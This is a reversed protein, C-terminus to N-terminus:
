FQLGDTLLFYTTTKFIHLLQLPLLLLHTSLSKFLSVLLLVLLPLLIPFTSTFIPPLHTPPPILLHHRHIYNHNSYNEHLHNCYCCRHIWYHNSQWCCYKIAWQWQLFAAWDETLLVCYSSQKLIDSFM